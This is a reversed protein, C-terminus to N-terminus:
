SEWGCASIGPRRRSSTWHKLGTTRILEAALGRNHEFQALLVEESRQPALTTLLLTLRSQVTGDWTMIPTPHDLAQEIAAADSPTAVIKLVEIVAFLLATKSARAAVEPWPQDQRLIELLRPKLAHERVFRAVASPAINPRADLWDPADAALKANPNPDYFVYKAGSQAAVAGPNAALLM